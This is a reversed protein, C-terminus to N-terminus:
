RDRDSDAFMDDRKSAYRSICRLRHLRVHTNHQARRTPVVTRCGIGTGLGAQRLAVSGRAATERCRIATTGAYISGRRWHAM